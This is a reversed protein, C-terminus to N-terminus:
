AQFLWMSSAAHCICAPRVFARFILTTSTLYVPLLLLLTSSVASQTSTPLPASRVSHCRMCKYGLVEGEERETELQLRWSLPVLSAQLSLLFHSFPSGCVYHVYLAFVDSLPQSQIYRCGKLSSLWVLAGCSALVDCGTIIFLRWCWPLWFEKTPCWCCEVTESVGGWRQRVEALSTTNEIIVFYCATVLWSSSLNLIRSLQFEDASREFTSKGELFSGFGFLLVSTSDVNCWTWGTTCTTCIVEATQGDFKEKLWTAHLVYRM